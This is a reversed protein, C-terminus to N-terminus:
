RRKLPYVPLNSCAWPPENNRSSTPSMLKRVWDFTRRTILSCRKVGDARAIIKSDVDADNGGGVLVELLFDLLSVKALIEEVAEIHNREVHGRQTLM